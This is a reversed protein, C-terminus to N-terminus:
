RYVHGHPQQLALVLAIGGGVSGPFSILDALTDVVLGPLVAPDHHGLLFQRSVSLDDLAVELFGPDHAQDFHRM